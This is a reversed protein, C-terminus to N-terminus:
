WHEALAKGFANPSRMMKKTNKTVKKMHKVNLPWCNIFLCNHKSASM